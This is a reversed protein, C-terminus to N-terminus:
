ARHQFSRAALALMVLGFALVIRVDALIPV